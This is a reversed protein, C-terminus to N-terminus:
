PNIKRKFEVLDMAIGGAFFIAVTVGLVVSYEKNPNIAECLLM